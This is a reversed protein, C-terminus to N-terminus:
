WSISLQRQHSELRKTAAQFYDGDLEIGVFDLGSNHAAIASSGSGLHTDLITWDQKTYKDFIWQYLQIPKQTPHIRKIGQNHDEIHSYTFKRVSSSFSTWALECDSMPNSGNHKDWVLMCRTNSLYNLFYNGGWIIQNKSVRILEEFYKQSPIDNDWNKQVHIDRAYKGYSIGKHQKIGYPPDVVALDFENDKLTSMYEMCDGHILNIM